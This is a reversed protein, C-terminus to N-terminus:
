GVSEEREPQHPIRLGILLLDDTQPHPHTQSAEYRWETITVDLKEIRKSPSNGDLDLLLKKFNRTMFKRGDLGGFQDPYGDSFLYVWDGPELDVVHNSFPKRRDSHGGGIPRRTGKTELMEGNRVIILPRGAGAFELSKLDHAVKVLAIDMGDNATKDDGERRLAAMVGEHLQTLVAAPETIKDKDVIENLLTNGIMSMFGGPVGHGTCDAAAILIGDQHHKWWYFDGSVIDRPRFFVFSGPFSRDLHSIPPLIAEQIRKAYRISDTISKNKDEIIEKSNRLENTLLQEKNLVTKISRIFFFGVLLIVALSILINWLARERAASIFTEFRQDVEIIAVVEGDSNRLPMFASLWIGNESEYQHIVAGEEKHSIIEKPYQEYVHRFFPTDTTAVGFEVTEREDEFVITYITTPLQNAAQAAFLQQHLYQYLQSQDNLAIADKTKYETMLAQHQDGDIQASLTNAISKLKMLETEEASAIDSFYARLLFFGTFGIFFLFILALVRTSANHYITRWISAM